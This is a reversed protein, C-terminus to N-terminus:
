VYVSVCVSMCEYVCVCMCECVYVCACMCLCVCVSVTCPGSLLLVTLWQLIIIPVIPVSDVCTAGNLAICLGAM